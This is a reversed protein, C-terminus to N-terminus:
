CIGVLLKSLEILFILYSCKKEFPFDGNLAVTLAFIYLRLTTIFITKPGQGYDSLLFIQTSGRKLFLINKESM